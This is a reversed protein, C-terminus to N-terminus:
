RCNFSTGEISFFFSFDVSDPTVVPGETLLPLGPNRYWEIGDAHEFTLATHQAM